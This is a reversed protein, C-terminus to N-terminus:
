YKGNKSPTPGDWDKEDWAGQNVNPTYKEARVGSSSPQGMNSPGPKNKENEKQYCLSPHHPKECHRCNEKNCSRTPHDWLCKFCLNSKRILDSRTKANGNKFKPCAFIKHAGECVPCGSKPKHNKVTTVPTTDTVQFVQRKPKKKIDCSLMQSLKESQSPQLEIARNELFDLLDTVKTLKEKVQKQKWESRTEEDLKTKIIFILFPDWNDVKIKIGPLARLLQNTTDIIARISYHTVKQKVASTELFKRLYEDALEDVRDYRRKLDAWAADYNSATIQYGRICDLANGKLHSRLQHFKMVKNMKRSKDVLYEFMDRFPEWDELTGNFFSLQIADLKLNMSAQEEQVEGEQDAQMEGEQIDVEDYSIESPQKNM